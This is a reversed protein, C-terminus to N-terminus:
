SVHVRVTTGHASSRIQVLDCLQNAIWLGRGRPNDPTPARRGALPDDFSGHDHLDCVVGAEARWLRLTVPGEGHELSNTAIENVTLVFDFERERPLGLELARRRILHRMAGLGDLTVELVLTGEPPAPLPKGFPAAIADLGEYLSSDEHSGHAAVFFPHSRRAERLVEPPLAAVDYPCVLWFADARAFALNLLSEHRQCEVLEAASREPFIPEGVGRLGVGPAAHAAVFAHWAPIIRAPNQGVVGMDAFQVREIPGLEERLRELKRTGVVVLAPEGRDVGERVFAATAAVFEDEGDYFLAEHRFQPTSDPVTTV